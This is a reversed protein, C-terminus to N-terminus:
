LAELQRAVEAATIIHGRKLLGLRLTHVFLDRSPKKALVLELEQDNLNYVKCYHDAAAAFAGDFGYVSTLFRKEGKGYGPNAVVFCPTIYTGYHDKRGRGVKFAARFGM